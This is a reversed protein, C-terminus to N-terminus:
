CGGLMSVLGEDRAVVLTVEKGSAVDIAVEWELMLTFAVEEGM